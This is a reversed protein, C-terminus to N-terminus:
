WAEEPMVVVSRPGLAAALDRPISPYPSHPAAIVVHEVNRLEALERAVELADLVGRDTVPGDVSNSLSAALPVNGLGDTVITLWAHSIPARGHRLAHRLTQLALHLGHALPTANGPQRELALLIRPSLLSRLLQREARLPSPGGAGGVEVLCVAARQVYARRLAPALAPMWDGARRCTHDLVLALMHEAEPARRYCRLDAGSLLLHRGPAGDTGLRMRRVMQFKAAERVTDVWAIDHVRTTPTTGIAAGRHGAGSARRQWPLRLPTLEREPEAADEPYPGTVRGDIGAAGLPEAPDGHLVPQAIAAGAVPGATGDEPGRDPGDYQDAGAGQGPLPQEGGGAPSGIGDAPLTPAVLQILVAVDEVEVRTVHTKGDIKASARALRLLGLPRRAGHAAAHLELARDLAETTVEPVPRDDHFPAHWRRPPRTIRPPVEPEGGMADLVRYVGDLRAVARAAPFRIPFRDLLHPSVRGIDASACSAIWYVNTEITESVGHRELHTVPSSLGAIAARATTVGVRALDPVVLVAPATPLGSAVPGPRSVMSSLRGPDRLSSSLWLDDDDDAVGVLRRVPDRGHRLRLLELFADVAPLFADEPLDLLLVGDLAPELVASMLVRALELRGPPAATTM